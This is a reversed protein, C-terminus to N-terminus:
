TGVRGLLAWGEWGVLQSGGGREGSRGEACYFGEGRVRPNRKGCLFAGKTRLQSEREEGCLYKWGEGWAGGRLTTGEGM